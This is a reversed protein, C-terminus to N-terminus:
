KANANEKDSKLVEEDSMGFEMPSYLSGFRDAFVHRLARAECIGRLFEHPQAVAYGSTRKTLRGGRHIETIAEDYYVVQTYPEKWGRRYVRCIGRVPPRGPEPPDPESTYTWGMCDPHQCAIRRWAQQSVIYTYDYGGTDNPRASLYVERSFPDLGARKCLMLLVMAEKPPIKPYLVQIITSASTRIVDVPSIAIEVPRDLGVDLVQTPRGAAVRVSRGEHLVPPLLPEPGDEISVAENDLVQEVIGKETEDSM